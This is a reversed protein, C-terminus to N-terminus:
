RTIVTEQLEGTYVVIQASITSDGENWFVYHGEASVYEHLTLLKGVGSLARAALRADGFDLFLTPRQDVGSGTYLAHVKDISKM